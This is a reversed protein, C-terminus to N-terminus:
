TKELNPYFNRFFLYEVDDKWRRDAVRVVEFDCKTCRLNDCGRGPSIGHEDRSGALCVPFCKRTSCGSQAGAGGGGLEGHRQNGSSSRNGNNEGVGGVKPGVCDLDDLLDDLLDGGAGKPKSHNKPSPEPSSISDDFSSTITTAQQVLAHLHTNTHQQTHATTHTRARINTDRLTSM